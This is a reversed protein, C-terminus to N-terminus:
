GGAQFNESELHTNFTQYMASGDEATLLRFIVIFHQSREVTVVGSFTVAKVLFRFGLDRFIFSPFVAEKEVSLRRKSSSCEVKMQACPIMM